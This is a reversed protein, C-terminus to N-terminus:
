QFYTPLLYFFCVKSPVFANKFPLFDPKNQFKQWNEYGPDPYPDVVSTFFNELIIIYIKHSDTEIVARNKTLFLNQQLTELFHQLTKHGRTVWIQLAQLSFLAQKKLVFTVHPFSCSKYNYFLHIMSVLMFTLQLSICPNYESNWAM